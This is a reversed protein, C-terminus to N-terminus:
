RLWRHLSKRGAAKWATTSTSSHSRHGRRRWRTCADTSSPPAPAPRTCPWTASGNAPSSPTRTSGWRRRCRRWRRPSPPRTRASSGASRSGPTAPRSPPRAHTTCCSRGSPAPRAHRRGGGRAPARRRLQPRGASAPDQRRGCGRAETLPPSGVLAELHASSPTTASGTWSPSCGTMRRATPRRCSRTPSRPSRASRSPRTEAEVAERVRDRMVEADRAAGLEGALWKLEGRLPRVVDAAFLPKFTTLASRLRRTAVRMKHVSDPADLRVPLDQARVQECRSASIAWRAGRRGAVQGDAEQGHAHGRRPCERRDDLVQGAELREAVGAPRERPTPRRRRRSSSTVTGSNWRSRAGRGRRGPRPGRGGDTPLLRRATVRDDAVEALVHGTVDVVRRVTRDTLIEAIPRLPRGLSRAWVMKQLPAPVTRAGRGLPLRVESRARRGAPVKLHWGADDGGTRRRLTLGARRWGCTRPTSTPPRWGSGCPIARSSRRSRSIGGATRGSWWSRWRRCSSGDDAVYKKEVEQHVTLM